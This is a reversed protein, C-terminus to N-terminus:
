LVYGLPMPVGKMGLEIGNAIDVETEVGSAEAETVFVAVSGLLKTTTTGFLMRSM